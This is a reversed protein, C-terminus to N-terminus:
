TCAMANATQSGTGYQKTNKNFFSDNFAQKVQKALTNYDSCDQTKGLLSAVEQLITLDYYYIATATIGM